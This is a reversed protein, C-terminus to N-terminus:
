TLGGCGTTCCAMSTPSRPYIYTTPACTTVVANDPTPKMSKTLSRWRRATLCSAFSTNQGRPGQIRGLLRLRPRGKSPSYYASVIAPGPPTMDLVHVIQYTGPGGITIFPSSVAALSRCLGRQTFSSKFSPTSSGTVFAVTTMDRSARSPTMEACLMTSEVSVRPAFWHTRDNAITPYLLFLVGNPFRIKLTM